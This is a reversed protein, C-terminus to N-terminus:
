RPGRSFTRRADVEKFVRGKGTLGRALKRGIDVFKESGDRCSITENGDPM